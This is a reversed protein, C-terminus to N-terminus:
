AHRGLPYREHYTPITLCFLLERWTCMGAEAEDAVLSAGLYDNWPRLKQSISDKALPTMPALFFPTLSERAVSTDLRSFLEQVDDRPAPELPEKVWALYDDSNSFEEEEDTFVQVQLNFNRRRSWAPPPPLEECDTWRIEGGRM